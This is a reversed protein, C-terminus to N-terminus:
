RWEDVESGETSQRRGGKPFAENKGTGKELRDSWGTRQLKGQRGSSVVSQGEEEWREREKEERGIDNRIVARGTM